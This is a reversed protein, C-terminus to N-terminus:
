KTWITYKGSDTQNQEVKTFTSLYADLYTKM